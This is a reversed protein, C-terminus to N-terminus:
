HKAASGPESMDRHWKAKAMEPLIKAVHGQMKTKASGAVIHAEGDMMAQFGDRAVDAPDDKKGAGIKTDDMGARHFFNTETAGPMLATVTVGTDELESRLAHSFSLLFAKTAGYVAEFPAPMVAAISSTFLIRGKGKRAMDRAALKALHVSGVVNLSIMNLEEALPTDRAFDGSVGVGANILVADCGGRAKVRDYLQEVGEPTALDCQVAEADCGLSKFDEVAKQIGEDEAAVILDFGHQACERALHYGIGSSAGTVVALPRQQAM